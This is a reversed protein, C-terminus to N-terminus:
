SLNPQTLSTTITVRLPQVQIPMPACQAGLVKIEYKMQYKCKAMEYCIHWERVYMEENQPFHHFYLNPNNYLVEKFLLKQRLLSIM